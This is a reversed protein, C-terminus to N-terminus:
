EIAEDDVTSHDSQEGERHQEEAEDGNVEHVIEKDATGSIGQEGVIEIEETVVPNRAQKQQVQGEREEQM